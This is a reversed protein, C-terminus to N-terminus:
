EAASAEKSPADQDAYLANVLLDTQHKWEDDMADFPAKGDRDALRIEERYPFVALLEDGLADRLFQEDSADRVKSGVYKVNTLNIDAALRKIQAACDLSRKGPEVVVLMVDVNEATSRGLHEVGAEMDMILTEGRDLILTDVLAKMFADEPCACGGGGQNVAGLVLLDVGRTHYAYNDAVDDVKPSLNFMQGVIGVKAGMRDEILDVQRCLTKVETAQKEASVGLASALNADPDADLALVKEGRQALTLALISAITSKGVGGKGSIAIKM